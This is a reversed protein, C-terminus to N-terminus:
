SFRKALNKLQNKLSMDLLKNEYKVIVGGLIDENQYQKAIVEKKSKSKILTIVKELENDILKERSIIEASITNHDSLYMMEVQQLIKPILFNLRHSALYLLFNNIVQELKDKEKDKIALYIATALIKVQDKKKM